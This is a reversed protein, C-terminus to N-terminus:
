SIKNNHCIICEKKDMTPNILMNNHKIVYNTYGSVAISLEGECSLCMNVSLLDTNFGAAKLQDCTEKIVNARELIDNM